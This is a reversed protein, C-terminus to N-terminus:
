ADRGSPMVRREGGRHRQSTWEKAVMGTFLHRKVTMKNDTDICWELKPGPQRLCTAGFSLPVQRREM